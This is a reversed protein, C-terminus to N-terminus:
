DAPKLRKNLATRMKARVDIWQVANILNHTVLTSGELDYLEEAVVRGSNWEQWRVFRWRETRLAYGMIDGHTQHRNGTKMRPYQSLASDRFEQQPDKFLSLLSRGELGDPAPLECLEALTPFIDVVEVLASTPGVKQHGPASILLPVRTSLEFNNAKTWLGQEGLHFGHDGWLVVITSERLQLDDLQQLLQGIQADIYSVCAYYGHRLRRIQQASLRGDRPIDQYGELEGWSRTALEPAGQPHIQPKPSGIDDPNYLDWYKRPACFPLHPKRFGVALFFPDGSMARQELAQLAKQCVKGDVYRSDPVDASETASRKLGSGSLNESRAYRLKADRVSDFIPDVSWSPPDKSPAGSGHFIKGISQTHYGHRRLLEPLTVADPSHKRFHTKLDWVRITDPRLGTLMSLRSPCCVAQQCYARLCVLSEEALRDIAPTVATQDGYCGLAPRLDDVALFLVNPHDGGDSPLCTVTIAALLLSASHRM